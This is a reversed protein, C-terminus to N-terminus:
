DEEPPPGGRGGGPGGTRQQPGLTKVVHKAIAEIEAPSLAAAMSPMEGQGQAIVRGINAFDTRNNVPPAGVATGGRGNEGHCVVCLQDFKSKGLALEEPTAAVAMAAARTSPPAAALPVGGAPAPGNESVGDLTLAVMEAPKGRASVAVVIYQRGNLMYTMPASTVLSPLDMEWVVKGNTKDYARFAPSGTGGALNGSAGFFFLEKTLLPSPRIDFDGMSDWDLPLDKIAPNNRISANPKGLPIRWAHEGTNMNLAVVESYPPKFLPLGRPGQVVHNGSATYKMNSRSPDTPALGAANPKYRIPVYLMGTDPDFAAGNWNPGGGYGPNILTGRLGTAKVDVLPEYLTDSKAYKSMIEIAEKRLEPTFNILDDEHYGQSQLPKPWSPFPQTPSLKEGPIKSAPVPREEIPWVPEGTLRNFVFVNSQKTLVTAVPIRKGDKVIDFLLPAAPIDYDWIGHHVTQFHWVRRGTKADICVVSEAFLGDGKREGGYFDNSPTDGSVYVLGNEVDASMMTWTGSNGVYDAAGDEWSDYGYEGKRPVMHFTWKLEGTRVDFGRIHGPAAEKNRAGGPITQVVIVDGVVIAPSVSGVDQVPTGEVIGPRLDIWGNKGFGPAAKGTKGDVAILRGDGSNHFVRKEKGDTWYALSRLVLSAGRGGIDAPQPEFTWLTKGTGADIAAMGHNLWPVYLVGDDLLPTSKYNSSTGDGSTDASWRWAVKLRGVSAKNIQDLPAYRNQGGDGGWYKWETSDYKRLVDAAIDAQSARGGPVGPLTCAFALAGALACAAVGAAINRNFM